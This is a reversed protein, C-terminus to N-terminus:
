EQTVRGDGSLDIPKGLYTPDADFWVALVDKVRAAAERIDRMRQGRYSRLDASMGVAELGLADAIYLARHLHYKQTVIVVRQAGFVEKARVLSEYTSFGAHDLFVDQAPVGDELAIDLMCAVENYDAQGHDGSMLLKPATGSRYLALGTQVRDCLMDSPTGDPRVGAGLVLICDAGGEPEQVSCIRDETSKVVYLNVLGVTLLGLVGLIGIVRLLGTLRTKPKSKKM